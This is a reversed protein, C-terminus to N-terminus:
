LGRGKIAKEVASAIAAQQTQLNAGPDMDYIGQLFAIDPDTIATAKLAAGCGAVFLNTISPLPRCEDFAPTQSLALM